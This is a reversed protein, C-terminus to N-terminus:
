QYDHNYSDRNRDYDHNYGNDYGRDYAGHEHWGAHQSRHGEDDDHSCGVTWAGLGAVLALAIGRALMTTRIAKHM